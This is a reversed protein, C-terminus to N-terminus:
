PTPDFRVSAADAADFYPEWFATRAHIQAGDEDPRDLPAVRIDVHSLDAPSSTPARRWTEFSQAPDYLSLGDPEYELLDSVLVLRRQPIAAGFEPDAAVARLGSLIPSANAARGGGARRLARDLADGFSAQWREQARRTNQFLPNAMQGDGPNCLSFLVRPERPRDARINAITLRGYRPLRQQEQQVIARLLRKHRAELRDTADVLIYTHAPLPADTRCLTDPDTPPPRLMFGAAALGALVVFAFAILLVGTRDGRRAARRPRRM